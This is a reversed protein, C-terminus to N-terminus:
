QASKVPAYEVWVHLLDANEQFGTGMFSKEVEDTFIDPVGIYDEIWCSRLAKWFKGSSGNELLDTAPFCTAADLLSPDAKM